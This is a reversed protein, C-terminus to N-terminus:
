RRRTFSSFPKYQLYFDKCKTIKCLFVSPLKGNNTRKVGYNSTRKWANMRLQENNYSHTKVNPFKCFVREANLGAVKFAIHAHIGYVAIHDDVAHIVCGGNGV